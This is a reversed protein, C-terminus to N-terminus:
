HRLLRNRYDRSITDAFLHYGLAKTHEISGGRFEIKFQPPVM